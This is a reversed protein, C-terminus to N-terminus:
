AELDRFVISVGPRTLYVIVIISELATVGLKAYTFEFAKGAQKAETDLTSRIAALQQKQTPTPNNKDLRSFAAEYNTKAQQVRQQLAVLLLLNAVTLILLLGSLWITVKRALELRFLLGVAVLLNLIMACTYIVGYIVNTQYSNLFGAICGVVDFAAIIYVGKPLPIKEEQIQSGTLGVLTETPQTAQPIQDPAMSPMSDVPLFTSAPLAPSAQIEESYSSSTPPDLNESIPQIVKGSHVLSSPQYTGSQRDNPQDPNLSRENAPQAPSKPHM